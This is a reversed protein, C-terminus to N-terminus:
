LNDGPFPRFHIYSAFFIRDFKFKIILIKLYKAFIYGGRGWLAGLVLFVSKKHTDERFM